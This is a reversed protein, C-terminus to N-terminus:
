LYELILPKLGKGAGIQMINPDPMYNAEILEISNSTIALDWAIMRGRPEILMLEKVSQKILDWNPISFGIMLKNSSPHYLFKEGKLNRGPSIVIGNEIDIPYTIGGAHFNDVDANLGGVRLCASIIAQKYKPSLLTFIRVTNVSSPNCESISPHQQVFEEILLEPLLDKKLSPDIIGITKLLTTFNEGKSKSISFIGRGSSLGVPKIIVKEHSDIFGEIEKIDKIDGTFLWDRKVFKSFVKNTIEKRNFKDAADAHNFIKEYKNQDRNTWYRRKELASLKWFQYSIYMNPTIGYRVYGKLADWLFWYKNKDYERSIHSIANILRHLGKKYKSM